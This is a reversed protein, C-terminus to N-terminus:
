LGLLGWGRFEKFELWIVTKYQWQALSLAHLILYRKLEGSFIRCMLSFQRIKRPNCFAKLHNACGSVM